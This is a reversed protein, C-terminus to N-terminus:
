DQLVNLCHDRDTNGGRLDRADFHLVHAPSPTGAEDAYLFVNLVCVGNKYQWINAQRDARKFHPEGLQAMVWADSQGLLQAATVKPKAPKQPQAEVTDPTVAPPAGNPAACAGLALAALVLLPSLARLRM